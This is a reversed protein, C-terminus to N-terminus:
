PAAPRYRKNFQHKAICGARRQITSFTEEVHAIWPYLEQLWPMDQLNFFRDVPQAGLIHADWTLTLAANPTLVYAHAGPFIGQSKSFLPHVGPEPAVGYSGFSPKGIQLIREFEVDPFPADIVADHEFIARPGDLRGIYKWLRYQSCFNGLVADTVSWKTKWEGIPIGESALFDRAEKATTAPWIDIEWGHQAGSEICRQACEVSGEHDLITVVFGKM